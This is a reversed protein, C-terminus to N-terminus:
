QKMKLKGGVIYVGKPLTEWQEETGVCLGQLTYVASPECDITSLVPIGTKPGLTCFTFYTPEDYKASLADGLYKGTYKNRLTFGKGEVYNIEWVAGNEVDQGNQNNLGLIFSCDAVTSYGNLYGPSGWISYASGSPTILRLLYCGSVTSKELRFLYGTNADSFATAYTDFGLNQDTSGFFAKERKEDVIAFPTSGIASLSTFRQNIEKDSVPTEPEDIVAEIGMLKLAQKAYRSGMIRYGQATFHLGDGKQPCNASSIVYSNPIVNPVRAIVNNHAWCAGKEAQSVTEGVFLPVDAANLGLDAILRDYIKKVKQPWDSQGNNSEGQHLLIGKIVGSKQAIKAMDVLRQYPDNNYAAFYNKLWQEDSTMSAIYSAVEEQMFGEIKTGGIAVDVVGVRVNEPLYKVMTRGFYDAMGLGTGQRVIPPVATYWEGMTRAPSSFNVCALTQFRPDIGTKDVTEPTANGEMNSQGFCLYVYFNPDATSPDDDGERTFTVKDLNGNPGTITVRLTHKGEPLERSLKGKVTTYTDWSSSGTQPINIKCLQTTQNNDRLSITFSAGTTGSSVVAECNYTGTKTVNVTYELWENTATYGIASGGNGKVIDVGENDTRYHADGEDNADSDHFTLGEGGRDFDEFQLTGPLSISKYPTRKGNVKLTTKVIKSERGEADTAIATIAYSGKAAPIFQTAYPEATLTEVLMDNAFVKINEITSTTSSATATITVTDGITITTPSAKVTVKMNNDMELRTFTMKGINFGGRDICLCLTHQGAELPLSFRSHFTKYTSTGGTSPVEVFDTLFIMNGFNNEVLHFMGDGSSAVEASLSYLGAEKVDVTYEMWGGTKTVGTRAANYYTVGSIGEDYQMADIIGPLEFPVGDNFPKRAKTSLQVAIRSQREYTSGDTATVVAKLTKTGPKAAPIECLYPAETMTAVLTTDMYLEVKEITKTALTADVWVPLKDNRAVKTSAPKVYISAEKKFGPYPSKATKAADTKMYDRLWIMAPRDKGDRILGSNGDTTWTKGYIYGWLTIGACYDAEWLVPILNKYQREQKADDATGIDFETSYMPIQLADQIEKMAKQFNSLSIDTLDHSQCGYADIPAGADILTRVLDIFETKQYTFTNYDNYVLIANPWREHALQFAKIIWDYGTRGEGGLAARYPAPAHGAIAENVVDIIELNPYHKQVADFYEVIAKYQEATSLNNVWGPYQGGWILTHYKFPFGHQKAYNAARDAGSFSFSGRSPEIADWKSENEPTIQNWLKYFPESGYDVSSYTTINGLFKDPNTSLQAQAGVFSLLGIMVAAFLKKM